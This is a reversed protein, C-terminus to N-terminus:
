YPETSLATFDRDFNGTIEDSIPHDVALDNLATKADESLHEFPDVQRAAERLEEAHPHDALDIRLAFSATETLRLYVTDGAAPEPVLAVRDDGTSAPITEARAAALALDALRARQAQRGKSSHDTAGIIAESYLAAARTLTAADTPTGATREAAAQIAHPATDAVNAATDTDHVAIHVAWAAKLAEPAPVPTGTFTGSLDFYRLGAVTYHEGYQDHLCRALTTLDPFDNASLSHETPKGGTSTPKITLTVGLIM